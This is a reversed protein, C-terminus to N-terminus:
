VTDPCHRYNLATARICRLSILPKKISGDNGPNRQAEDPSCLQPHNTKFIERKNANMQPCINGSYGPSDGSFEFYTAQISHLPIRPQKRYLTQARIVSRQMIFYVDSIVKADKAGKRSFM